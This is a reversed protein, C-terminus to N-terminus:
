RASRHTRRATITAGVLAVALLVLGLPSTTRGDAMATDPSGEAGGTDDRPAGGDTEGPVPVPGWTISDLVSQAHDALAAFAGGAPASLALVVTGFDLDVLILRLEDGNTVTLGDEALVSQTRLDPTSAGGGGGSEGSGPEVVGSGYAPLLLLDDSGCTAPIVVRADVRTAPLAGIAAHATTVDALAPHSTLWDAVGGPELGIDALDTGCADAAAFGSFWLFSVLGSSDARSFGSGANVAQWEDALTFYLARAFGFFEYDGAGIGGDCVM